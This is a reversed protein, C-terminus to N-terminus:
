VEHTGEVGRAVRAATRSDLISLADELAAIAAANEECAFKSSQYFELRGKAAEIVGEVFAGNPEDRTGGESRQLPGNQWSISIGRGSTSGGAPNGEDDTFHTQHVQQRM